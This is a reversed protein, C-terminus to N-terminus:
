WGLESAFSHFVLRRTRPSCNPKWVRVTNKDTNLVVTFKRISAYDSEERFEEVIDHITMNEHIDVHDEVEDPYIVQYDDNPSDAALIIQVHSRRLDRGKALEEVIDEVTVEADDRNTARYNNHLGRFSLLTSLVGIQENARVIDSDDITTDDFIHQSSETDSFSMLGGDPRSDQSLAFRELVKDVVKDLHGDSSPKTTVAEITNSDLHVRLSTKERIDVNVYDGRNVDYIPHTGGLTWFEFYVHEADEFHIIRPLPNYDVEGILPAPSKGAALQYTNAINADVIENQLLEQARDATEAESQITDFISGGDSQFSYLSTSRDVFKFHSQFFEVERLNLVERLREISETRVADIHNIKNDEELSELISQAAKRCILSAIENSTEEDAAQFQEKLNRRNVKNINVTALLKQVFEISPQSADTNNNSITKLTRKVTRYDVTDIITNTTRVSM